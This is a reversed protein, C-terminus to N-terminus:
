KLGENIDFNKFLEKAIKDQIKDEDSLIEFSDRQIYCTQTINSKRRGWKYISVYEDLLQLLDLKHKESVYKLLEKIEKM